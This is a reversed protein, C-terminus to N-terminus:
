FKAIESYFDSMNLRYQQPTIGCVAKFDKVFHSVDYYGLQECIFATTNAAESLLRLSRNIRVLRSFGKMNLGLYRSFLRNLHRSCYFASDAIETSTIVGGTQVIARIAAALEEPYSFRLRLLLEKEFELLLQDVSCSASFIARVATDMSFDVSSFPLVKDTLEKQDTKGFPFFGAPQFEVIFIVDCQNALDGVRVPRTTPGFLFSYLQARYHFLVLTVSGHPMITYADSITSQDPFSVTFNSILGRLPECPPLYAFREGRMLTKRGPSLHELSRKDIMDEQEKESM